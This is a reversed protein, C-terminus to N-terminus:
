QVAGNVQMSLRLLESLGHAKDNDHYYTVFMSSKDFLTFYSM